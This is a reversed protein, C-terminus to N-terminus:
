KIFQRIEVQGNGQQIHLIYQGKPLDTLNISFSSDLISFAKIAQCLVDYITARGQGDIINLEDLVPNPFISVTKDNTGRITINIVNSYEFQGDFDVQKLRYYNINALPEHDTFEYNSVEATTGNGSVFDLTKWERDDTSCQIEFGQNNEESATQWNIKVKDKEIKEVSFATLEVPLATTTNIRINDLMIGETGQNQGM